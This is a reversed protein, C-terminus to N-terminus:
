HRISIEYIPGANFGHKTYTYLIPEAKTKTSNEPLHPPISLNVPVPFLM